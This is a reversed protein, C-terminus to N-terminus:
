SIAELVQGKLLPWWRLSVWSQEPSNERLWESGALFSPLHAPALYKHEVGKSFWQSGSQAWRQARQPSSHAARESLRCSSSGEAGARCMASGARSGQSYLWLVKGATRSSVLLSAHPKSIWPWLSSGSMCPSPLSHCFKLSFRSIIKM